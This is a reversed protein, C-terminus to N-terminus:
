SGAETSHPLSATVAETSEDDAGANRYGLRALLREDKIVARAIQGWEMYYNWLAAEAKRIAARRLEPNPLEAPKAHLVADFLQKAEAVRESTFGRQCLKAIAAKSTSDKARALKDFRALFGAVVTLAPQNPKDLRAFLQALVQPYERELSARVVRLWRRRWDDLASIEATATAVPPAVAQTMGLERMLDWGLLRDRETFGCAALPSLVRDDRLGLLFELVRRMKANPALTAM